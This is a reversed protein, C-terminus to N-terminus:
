YPLVEDARCLMQDLQRAVSEISYREKVNRRGNQGLEDRLQSSHLLNQIAGALAIPDERPVILGGSAIGHQLINLMAPIDTGIIPLGCAMAELPAVPFGERRSALVYVDAASLYLRMIGRDLEYRDIWLVSSLDPCELRQRLIPGDPGSGILLLVPGKGGSARSVHEWADLLVDLGKYDMLIRGHCVVIRADSPLGLARRAEDRDMPRWVGLDIPNPIPWIQDPNMGYRQIVRQAEGAAGIIVGRAARLTIPRIVDEVRRTHASAGQFTAYVPLRLLSGLLVCLDFRVYEYDHALIAACRNRRLERVLALTLKILGACRDLMGRTARGVAMSTPLVSIRTGSPIHRLCMTTKVDRSVIFIIPEWGASRLADVYGFLWTGTTRECYDALSLGITDLYDEIRGVSPTLLAICGRCVGIESTLLSGRDQNARATKLRTRLFRRFLERARM